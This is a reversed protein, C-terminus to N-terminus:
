AWLLGGPTPGLDIDVVEISVLNSVYRGGAADGPVVMRAFGATGGADLQGLTDDYAVLVQEGGFRPDLEGMSFIARYGDSGTAVVYFGLIDNKVTPDTRVGADQLLDWLLVGTYTDTVPTGASTYTVTLTLSPLAALDAEDFNAENAVAGGLVFSTSVGGPGAVFEPGAGVTLSILDSVYRGGAADGPVVMRARGEPAFWGLQGETDNYAVMIKEGGFRPDIEGLSYVARYGDSGTAVVYHALIDNKAAPNTTVGGATALLDTLLVGTYTDTVPVGASTYTVTQTTAPLKHLDGIWLTDPRAVEGGLRILGLVDFLWAPIDDEDYRRALAKLAQKLAPRDLGDGDSITELIM